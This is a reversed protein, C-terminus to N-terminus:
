NVNEYGVNLAIELLSQQTTQMLQKARQIRLENKYQTFTIGLNKHFLDSLYSSNICFLNAIDELTLAECYHEDIYQLVSGLIDNTYNRLKEVARNDLDVIIRKMADQAQEDDIPKLMYFFVNNRFAEQVYSFNDYGSLIVFLSKIGQQRCIRIMDLGSIREMRIDTIVVDPHEQLIAVLSQEANLYEGVVKFGYKEFGFSAKIDELAWADDDVLIVKYM